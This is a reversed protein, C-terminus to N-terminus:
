RYLFFDHQVAFQVQYNDTRHSALMETSKSSLEGQILSHTATIQQRSDNMLDVAHRLAPAIM